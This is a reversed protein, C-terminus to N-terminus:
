RIKRFLFAMKKWFIAITKKLIILVKQPPAADATGLTAEAEKQMKDPSPLGLARQMAAFPDHPDDM